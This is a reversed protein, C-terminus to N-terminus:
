RTLFCCVQTRAACCAPAIPPPARSRGGKALCPQGPATAMCPPAISKSERSFRQAIQDYRSLNLDIVAYSGAAGGTQRRPPSSQVLRGPFYRAETMLFMCIQAVHSGTTIHIWYQEHEPDLRYQKAFDFLCGYVDEVDWADRIALTHAIVETLEPAPM